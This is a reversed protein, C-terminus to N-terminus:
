SIKPPNILIKSRCEELVKWHRPYFAKLEREVLEESFVAEEQTFVHLKNRLHFLEHLTIAEIFLKKKEYTFAHALNKIIDECYYIM